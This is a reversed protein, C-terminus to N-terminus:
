SGGVQLNRLDLMVGQSPDYRFLSLASLQSNNLVARGNASEQRRAKDAAADSGHDVAGIGTVAFLAAQNVGSATQVSLSETQDVGLSLIECDIPGPTCTGPGGVVTGPQVAFLVRHGGQLVGLEVLLPQGDNPLVSLRQLPDLTNLGGSANTEALAVDYSQTSTLTGPAPKPTPTGAPIISKPPTTTSQPASTSPSSSTGGSSSTTSTTTTGAGTSGTATSTTTTTSSVTSATTGTGTGFPNRSPGTPHASSTTTQASVVPLGPLAPVAPTPASATPAPKTSKSLVLPIAVIAIVLLVALPWLRKERLDTLIDRLVNM